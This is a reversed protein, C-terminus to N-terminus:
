LLSVPAKKKVKRPKRHHGSKNPPGNLHAKAPAAPQLLKMGIAIAAIGGVGIVTPLLWKKNKQWFGQQTTTNATDAAVAVASSVPALSSTTSASAVAPAIATTVPTSSDSTDESATAISASSSATDPVVAESMSTDAAISTPLSTAAKTAAPTQAVEQDAAATESESFDESGKQGGGFINGVGKVLKAIAAVAGAAAAIFPAVGLEGLEGMEGLGEFGEMGRVNEDYYIEPGLLQSLPTNQNMYLVSDDPGLFGLGAVVEKNKNGKGNLIAKKLNKPNGGATSFISEMKNKVKVLKDYKDKLIGRKTAQDPSLYAYKIRSAVKFMNLKMAALFGNRLLVTAPNVKNIVKVIKKLFGFKGLEGVQGDFVLDNGREGLGTGHLGDLYQLDMTIDKKDSYPVEYDFQDTVCDIIIEQRGTTVVPYIHQFHDAKYKTIRLKHPIKLNTLISSIFTSYCDCDVGSKRDRWARRPSRIEEYGYRDKSYAIHTYVFDWINRCTAYVDKGKLVPAIGATHDLTQSVVKPIFRLTDELRADRRITKTQGVASPFLKDYERGSSIHRKTAAEM